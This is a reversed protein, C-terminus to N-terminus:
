LEHGDGHDCFAFPDQDVDLSYNGGSPCVPVTNNKFQDRLDEPTLETAGPNEFIYLDAEAAILKLNNQCVARQAINRPTEYSPYSITALLGIIMVVIMIEVVTFGAKRFEM